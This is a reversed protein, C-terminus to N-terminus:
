APNPLGLGRRAIINRQVESSGGGVTQIVSALMLIVFTGDCQAHKSGQQLWGGPGLLEVAATAFRQYWETAWIKNMAAEINPSRGHQMANVVRLSHMRAAELDTALDAVTRRVMPHQRMPVGDRTATRVYDVFVRFVRELM